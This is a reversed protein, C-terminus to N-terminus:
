SNWHCGLSSATCFGRAGAPRALQSIKASLPPTPSANDASSSARPSRICEPRTAPFRVLLRVALMIADTGFSRFVYAPEERRGQSGILRGTTANDM